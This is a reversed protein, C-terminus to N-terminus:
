VGGEKAKELFEELRAKRQDEDDIWAIARERELFLCTEVVARLLMPRDVAQGDRAEAEAHIKAAIEACSYAGSCLTFVRQAFPPLYIWRRDAAADAGLQRIRVLLGDDTFRNDRKVLNLSRAWKLRSFVHRASDEISLSFAAAFDAIIDYLTRSEDCRSLIFYDRASLSLARGGYYISGAEHAVEPAFYPRYNPVIDYAVDKVEPNGIIVKPISRFRHMNM